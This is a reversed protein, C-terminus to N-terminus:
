GWFFDTNIREIRGIRTMLGLPKIGGGSDQPSKRHEAIVTMTTTM